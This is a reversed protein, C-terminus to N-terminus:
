FLIPVYKIDNKIVEVSTSHLVNYRLVLSHNNYQMCAAAEFGYHLDLGFTLTISLLECDIM